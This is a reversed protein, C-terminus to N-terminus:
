FGLRRLYHRCARVTARPDHLAEASEEESILWGAYGHAALRAIV